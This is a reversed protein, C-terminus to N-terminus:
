GRPALVVVWPVNEAVPQVAKALGTRVIAPAHLTVPVLGFRDPMATVLAPDLFNCITM